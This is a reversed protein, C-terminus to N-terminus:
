RRSNAVLDTKTISLLHKKHCTRIKSTLNVTSFWNIGIQTLLASDFSARKKGMCKVDDADSDNKIFGFLM